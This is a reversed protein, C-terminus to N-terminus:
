GIYEPFIYDNIKQFIKLSDRIEHDYKEVKGMSAALNYFAFAYNKNIKLAHRYLNNAQKYNKQRRACNGLTNALEFDTKKIKILVLGISLAAEFDSVGSADNFEKELRQAAHKPESEYANQFEIMAQKYLKGDLLSIGKKILEDTKQHAKLELSKKLAKLM